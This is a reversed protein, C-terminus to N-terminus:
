SCPVSKRDLKVAAKAHLRAMVRGGPIARDFCLLTSQDGGTPPLCIEVPLVM